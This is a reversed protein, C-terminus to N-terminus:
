PELTPRTSIGIVVDLAVEYAGATTEARNFTSLTLGAPGLSLETLMGSPITFSGEDAAGRCRVWEGLTSLTVVVGDAAVTPPWSITLDSSVSILSPLTM